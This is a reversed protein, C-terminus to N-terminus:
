VELVETEKEKKLDNVQNTFSSYIDQLENQASKSEDISIEKNKELQRIKEISDKRTNRLSIHFDETIKGVLKVLDKRREESLPPINIRILNGEAKPTLGLESKLIAKETDIVAEKDWLQIAITKSDPISISAIQSLPTSVGYYEVLLGKVLAPSARGTRVSSFENELSIVTKEMKDKTDTFITKIASM